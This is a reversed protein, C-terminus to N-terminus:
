SKRRRSPRVQDVPETFRFFSYENGHLADDFWAPWKTAGANSAYAREKRAWRCLSDPGTPKLWRDGYVLGLEKLPSSWQFVAMVKMLGPLNRGCKVTRNPRGSSPRARRGEESDGGTKAKQPPPQIFHPTWPTRASM